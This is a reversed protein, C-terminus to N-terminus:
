KTVHGRYRLIVHSQPHPGRMRLWWRALNPTCLDQSLPFIVYKIQWTVVIDFLWTVKHTPDKWGLEGGKSLKPNVPRISSSIIVNTIDTGIGTGIGIGLNWHRPKCTATENGTIWSINLLIHITIRKQDSQSIMFKLILRIKRILGNKRYSWFTM